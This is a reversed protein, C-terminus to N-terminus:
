VQGLARKASPVSCTVRFWLESGVLDIRDGQITFSGASQILDIRLQNLIEERNAQPKRKTFLDSLNM